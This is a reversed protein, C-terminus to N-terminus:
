KPLPADNFDDSFVPKGLGRLRGSDGRGVGAASLKVPSYSKTAEVPSTPTYRGDGVASVVDPALVADAAALVAYVARSTRRHVSM